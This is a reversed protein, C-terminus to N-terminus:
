LVRIYMYLPRHSTLVAPVVLKQSPQGTLLTHLAQGQSEKSKYEVRWTQLIPAATTHQTKEELEQM